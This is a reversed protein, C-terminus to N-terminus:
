LFNIVRMTSNWSDLGSRTQVDQSSRYLSKVEDSLMAEVFRLWDDNSINPGKAVEVLEAAEQEKEELLGRIELERETIFQM